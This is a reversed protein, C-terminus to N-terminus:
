ALLRDVAAASFVQRVVSTTLGVTASEAGLRASRVTLQRTARDVADTHVRRDIEAVVEPLRGVTGGLVLVHPNVTAVIAAL